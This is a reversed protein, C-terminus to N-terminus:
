LLSAPVSFLPLERAVNGTFYIDAIFQSSINSSVAITRDINNPVEKMFDSNLVPPSSFNDVYNWSSLTGNSDPRFHGRVKNPFERYEAWAEQFGFVDHDGMPVDRGFLQSKYVPQEGINAFEPWYYDFRSKRMLSRDFGQGYTHRTLLGGVILLVGHETFSKSFFDGNISGYSFGGLNGVDSDTKTVQNTTIPIRKAGLFEPRQLRLDGNSVGFHSKLLEIYRTGGRADNELFSQTQLAVRFENISFATVNSLDAYEKPVYLGFANTPSLGSGTPTAIIQNADAKVGATPTLAGFALSGSTGAMREPVSSEDKRVYFQNFPVVDDKSKVERSFVPASSALAISVPDGKQPSPLCSTFYDHVKNIPLLGGSELLSRPVTIDVKLAPARVWGVNNECFNFGNALDFGLDQPAQTNQDRFWDNWVKGYSAMNLFNGYIYATSTEKQNVAKAGCYGLYDFASCHYGVGLSSTGGTSYEYWGPLVWDTSDAWPSGKNEGCLEEWHKWLLRNPVFFAFIDFFADDMVPAIPTALRIVSTLNVSFTDGPLVEIAEIPILDGASGDFKVGHNFRFVSRKESLDVPAVNYAKNSVM